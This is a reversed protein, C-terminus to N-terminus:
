TILSFWIKYEPRDQLMHIKGNLFLHKQVKAATSADVRMADYDKLSFINEKIKTKIIKYKAEM